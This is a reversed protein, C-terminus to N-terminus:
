GWSPPEYGGVLPAGIAVWALGDDGAIPQRRVAPDVRVAKGAAVEIEEDDLRLRGSGRVCVYVEEHNREVEDHEYGEVGPGLDGYNVGFARVGLAKRVKKMPGELQELDVVDYPAM